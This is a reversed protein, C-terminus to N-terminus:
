GKLSREIWNGAADRVRLKAQVPRGAKLEFRAADMDYTLVGVRDISEMVVEFHETKLYGAVVLIGQAPLQPKQRHKLFFEDTLTTRLKSSAATEHALHDRKDGVGALEHYTVLGRGQGVAAGVWARAQVVPVRGDTEGHFILTPTRLNSVTTIGGRSSYGEPNTSPTGGIWAKWHKPNEKWSGELEDRFEGKEDAQHWLAFDSIGSTIRAAAFTDPFKGLLAYVNGGGGSGGSLLVVEPSVIRDRYHSRAFAIADIVDQLEWGNCDPNGTADGRGRMEPAIVFYGHDAPDPVNDTHATKVQGHWGHMKVLLVGTEDACEFRAFLKLQPDTSCPYDRYERMPAASLALPLSLWLLTSLFKPIRM